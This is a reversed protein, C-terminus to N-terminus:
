CDEKLHHHIELQPASESTLTVRNWFEVTRGNKICFDVDEASNWKVEPNLYPGSLVIQRYEKNGTPYHVYVRTYGSSLGQGNFSEVTYFVSNFPSKFTVVKEPKAHCGSLAFAVALAATVHALRKAVKKSAFPM